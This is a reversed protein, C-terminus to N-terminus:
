TGAGVRQRVQGRRCQRGLGRRVEHEPAAAARTGPQGSRATPRGVEGRSAPSGFHRDQAIVHASLAAASSRHRKKPASIFTIIIKQRMGLAGEIRQLLVGFLTITLSLQVIIRFIIISLVIALGRVTRHTATLTNESM